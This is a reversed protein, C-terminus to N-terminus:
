SLLYERPASLIFTLPRLMASLGLWVRCLIRIQSRILGKLLGYEITLTGTQIQNQL